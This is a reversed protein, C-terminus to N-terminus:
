ERERERRPWCPYVGCGVGDAACVGERAGGRVRGRAASGGLDPNSYVRGAHGTRVARTGTPGRRRVPEVPVWEVDSVGRDTGASRPTRGPIPSRAFGPQPCLQRRPLPDVIAPADGKRRPLPDGPAHAERPAATVTSPPHARASFRTSPRSTVLSGLVGRGEAGRTDDDRGADPKLDEGGEEDESSTYAADSTFASVTDDGDGSAAATDPPPSADDRQMGASAEQEDDEKDEEGEENELGADGEVVGGREDGVAMENGNLDMDGVGVREEMEVGFKELGQVALEARPMDGAKLTDAIAVKDLVDIEDTSFLPDPRASPPDFALPSCRSLPVPLPVAQPSPPAAFLM